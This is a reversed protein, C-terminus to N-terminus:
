DRALVGSALLETLVPALDDAVTAADADHATALRAALEGAPLPGSLAEWLAVGTGSLLVTQHVGRRRVLVGDLTHRWLVDGRRLVADEPLVPDSAPASM